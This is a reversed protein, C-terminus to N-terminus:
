FQSLMAKPQDETTRVEVLIRINFNSLDIELVTSFTKQHNWTLVLATPVEQRTSYRLKFVKAEM